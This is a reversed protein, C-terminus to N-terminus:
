DQIILLGPLFLLAASVWGIFVSFIVKAVGLAVNLAELDDAKIEQIVQVIGGILAWWVGMYLGLGIGAVMMILGVIEKKKM